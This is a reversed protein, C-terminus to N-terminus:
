TRNASLRFTGNDLKEITIWVREISLEHRNKPTGQFATQTSWSRSNASASVFAVTVPSNPRAITNSAIRITQVTVDDKANDVFFSVASNAAVEITSPAAGEVLEIIGLEKLANRDIAILTALEIEQQSALSQIRQDYGEPKTVTRTLLKARVLARRCAEVEKRGAAAEALLLWADISRPPHQEILALIQQQQEPSGFRRLVLLLEVDPKPALLLEQVVTEFEKAAMRHLYRVQFKTPGSPEVTEPPQFSRRGALFVELIASEKEARLHASQKQMTELHEIRWGSQKLEDRISILLPEVDESSSFKWFTENHLMVGHFSTQRAAKLRKLFEFEPAAVFEPHLSAPLKPMAQHKERLPTLKGSVANAIQKAIDKGQLSYKASSSEIGALSSQHEVSITANQRVIPPSLHDHVSYNSSALSSGLTATVTTKLSHGALGSEEFSALDISLELGPAESGVEPLHGLPFYALRDFHNDAKFLELLETGIRELLVHDSLNLIMLRRDELFAPDSHSEASTTFTNNQSKLVGAHANFHLRNGQPKPPVEHLAGDGGRGLVVPERVVDPPLLNWMALFLVCVIM